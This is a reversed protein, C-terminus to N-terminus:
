ARERIERIEAVKSEWHKEVQTVLVSGNEATKDV